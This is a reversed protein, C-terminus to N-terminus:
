HSGKEEAIYRAYGAADMLEEVEGPNNMKIVIMWGKGHPDENVLEPKEILDGNVKVVTGSLPSYLDSVAKVSEIAGFTKMQGVADGVKPLDIFVVDGLEEQAHHTVGIVAEDGEIRAWEHERTYRLDEPYEM